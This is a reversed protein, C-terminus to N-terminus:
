GKRRRPKKPEGIPAPITQSAPPNAAMVVADQQAPTSAQPTAIEAPPSGPTAGGAPADQRAEQRHERSLLVRAM